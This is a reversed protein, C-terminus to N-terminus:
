SCRLQESPPLAGSASGQKSLSQQKAVELSEGKSKPNTSKRYKNLGLQAIKTKYM